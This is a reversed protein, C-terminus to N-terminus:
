VRSLLTVIGSAILSGAVGISLNKIDNLLAKIRSPNEEKQVLDEIEDIKNRMELAKEGYEDDLFSDYKKIKQIIEAVEAYDFEQNVSQSQSSNVTGQQIQVGTVEGYFNNTNNTIRQNEKMQIEKEKFYEIGDITLIVQVEGSIFVTSNSSICNHLKLDDMINGVNFEINPIESFMDLTCTVIDSGNEERKELVIKLFKESDKRLGVSERVITRKKMEQELEKQLKKIGNKNLKVLKMVKISSGDEATSDTLSMGVSTGFNRYLAQNINDITDQETAGKTFTITRNVGDLTISFSNEGEALANLDAEQGKPDGTVNGSSKVSCATALQQIESINMSSVANSSVSSIKIAGSSSIGTMTKFLSQSMLNTDGSGYYSFYKDSFTNIKTILDRYIDQKWELQQKLGSQKDIKTQTGMLLSKVISETDMGSALGSVYNKNGNGSVTNISSM